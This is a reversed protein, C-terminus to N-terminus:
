GTLRLVAKLAPRLSCSTHCVEAGSVADFICPGKIVPCVRDIGQDDCAGNEGLVVVRYRSGPVAAVDDPKQTEIKDVCGKVGIGKRKGKQQYRQYRREQGSYGVIAALFFGKHPKEGPEPGQGASQQEKEGPRVQHKTNRHENQGTDSERTAQDKVISVQRFNGSRM